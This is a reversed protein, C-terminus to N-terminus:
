DLGTQLHRVLDTTSILGVVKDDGDVVVVRHVKRGLVLDCVEALPTDPRCTIAPASAIDWVPRSLFRALASARIERESFSLLQSAVEHRTPRPVPIEDSEFQYALMRLVDAQSIMGRARGEEDVVPYGGFRTRQALEILGQIPAAEPVTTVDRTMIDQAQTM